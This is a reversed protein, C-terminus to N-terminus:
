WRGLRANLVAIAAPGATSTRLVSSGLVVPRAGAAGLRSLEEPAIGGEPGVVIVVDRDLGTADLGSLPETATPELLLMTADAARRALDATTALGSVEPSWARLSQKSAERVITRWRDRGKEVKPGDWRSISRSAQWPVIEDVGLETAAQIALEDRDGKALAQVLVLRPVPREEATVSEVILDLAGPAAAAVTTVAVIGRGNGVRVSEGARLRSVTVAHKAEAGGLRVSAGVVLSGDDLSEDIYHHAM